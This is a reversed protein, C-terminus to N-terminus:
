PYLSPQVCHLPCFFKSCLVQGPICGTGEGCVSLPLELPHSCPGPAQGGHLSYEYGKAGKRPHCSSHTLWGLWHTCGWCSQPPLPLVKLLWLWPKQWLSPQLLFLAPSPLGNWGSMSQQERHSFPFSYQATHGPTERLFPGSVPQEGALFLSVGPSSPPPPAVSEVKRRLGACPTAIHPWGLLKLRLGRLEEVVGKM